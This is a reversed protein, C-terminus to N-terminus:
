RSSRSAQERRELLSRNRWNQQDAIRRAAEPSDGQGLAASIERWTFRAQRAREIRERLDNDFPYDDLSEGGAKWALNDLLDVPGEDLLAEHRARSEARLAAWRELDDSDIARQKAPM